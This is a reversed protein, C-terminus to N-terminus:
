EQLAHFIHKSQSDADLVSDHDALSRTPTLGRRVITPYRLPCMRYTTITATLVRYCYKLFKNSTQLGYARQGSKVYKM